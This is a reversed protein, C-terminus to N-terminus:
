NIWNYLEKYREYLILNYRVNKDQIDVWKGLSKPIGNVVISKSITSGEDIIRLRKAASQGIRIKTVM